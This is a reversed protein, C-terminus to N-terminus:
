NASRARRLVRSAGNDDRQLWSYLTYTIDALEVDVRTRFFRSQVALGTSRLQDDGANGASARIRPDALFDDVELFPEEAMAEHLGAAADGALGPVVAQLVVPTATNVNIATDVAPLATVHPALRRWAAADLGRVMRLESAVAVPRNAALHPAPLAAYYDDEAGAPFTTERDADLWDVVAQALRPELELAQLLREFRELAVADVTEGSVLTNVNFRGQMDEIRGAVQGGEVPLPPLVRAWDQDRSDTRPEDGDRLDDALVAVAWREGGLALEHAQQLALRNGTRRQDLQDRTTMHVAAVTALAVVLLVTILAVGRQRCVGAPPMLAGSM